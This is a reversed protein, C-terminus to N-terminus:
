YLYHSSRRRMPPPKILRPHFPGLAAENTSSASRYITPIKFLRRCPKQPWQYNISWYFIPNFASHLHGLLLSYREIMLDPPVDLEICLQCIVYPLWAIAFIISIWLLSNALKRRSRLTSTPPQQGEEINSEAIQLQLHDKDQKPIGAVIIVHTPRRLLPMPLPLEGHKARATLSLATLKSHVGMHSILVACAPIIHVFLVRILNTTKKLQDRTILQSSSLFAALIWILILSTTLVHRRRYVQRAPRYNKVTSYRDISLAM